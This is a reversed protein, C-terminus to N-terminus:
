TCCERHIDMFNLWKRVNRISLKILYNSELPLTPELFVWTFEFDVQREQELGFFM